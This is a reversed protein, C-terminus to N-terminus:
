SSGLAHTLVVTEYGPGITAAVDLLLVQVVRAQDSESIPV